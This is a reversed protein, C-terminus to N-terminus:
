NTRKALKAGSAKWADSLVRNVNAHLHKPLHEIINRRKHEKRRRRRFASIQPRADPRGKPRCLAERDAEMMAALVQKGAHVCLGYFAHQVDQLVGAMPLSVQVEVNERALGISRLHKAASKMEATGKM